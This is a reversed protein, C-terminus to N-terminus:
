LRGFRHSLLAAVLTLTVGGVLLICWVLWLDQLSQGRALIGYFADIAWGNPTFRSLGQLWDPMMFRPVMSGGVASLILVLFTSVAHMQSPTRCLSAIFLAFGASFTAVAICALVIPGLHSTIPVDFFAQAVACISAVQVIGLGALFLFRGLLIQVAGSSGVLLRDSIGGDREELTISAAQLASFLLFMIGVAGIYYAVSPDDPGEVVTDSASAEIFQSSPLAAGDALLQRIQGKAISAAVERSPESVVTIAAPGELAIDGTLVIGVDEQGLRVHERVDELTWAPDTVASIDGSEILTDYFAATANAGSIDAVAMRIDLDGGSANTFIAAFIVYIAGPLVLALLLAGKDRWLRLSMVRLIAAIM